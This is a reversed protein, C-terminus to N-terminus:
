SCAPLLKITCRCGRVAGTESLSRSGPASAPGPLQSARPSGPGHDRAPSRTPFSPATRQRFLFLALSRSRKGRGGLCTRRCVPVQQPLCGGCGRTCACGCGCSGRARLELHSGLGGPGRGQQLRHCLHPARQVVWLWSTIQSHQERWVLQQSDATAPLPGPVGAALRLRASQIAPPQLLGTDVCGGSGCCPPPCRHTPSYHLAPAPTTVGPPPAAARGLLWAPADQPWRRGRCPSNCAPGPWGHAREAGPPASLAKSRCSIGSPQRADREAPTITDNWLLREGSPQGEGAGPDTGPLWPGEWAPLWGLTQGGGRAASPAAPLVLADRSGAVREPRSCTAVDVNHGAAQPLQQQQPPKEEPLWPRDKAQLLVLSTFLRPEAPGGRRRPAGTPHPSAPMQAGALHGQAPSCPRSLLSRFGLAASTGLPLCSSKPNRQGSDRTPAGPRRPPAPSDTRLTRPAPLCASRPCPSSSSSKGSSDGRCGPYPPAPTLAARGRCGPELGTGRPLPVPGHPAPALPVARCCLRARLRGPLLAGPAPATGSVQSGAGGRSEAARCGRARAARGRALSALGAGPGGQSALGPWALCPPLASAQWPIEMGPRYDTGPPETAPLAPVLRTGRGLGRGAWLLVGPAQGGRRRPGPCSVRPRWCM